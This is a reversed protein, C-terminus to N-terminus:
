KTSSRLEQLKQETQYVQFRQDCVDPELKCGIMGNIYPVADKSSALLVCALSFGFIFGIIFKDV